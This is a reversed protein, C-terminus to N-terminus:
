CNMIISKLKMNKITKVNNIIEMHKKLILLYTYNFNNNNKIITKNKIDIRKNLNSIEMEQEKVKYFDSMKNKQLKVIIRFHDKYLYISLYIHSNLM